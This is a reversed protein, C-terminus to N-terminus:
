NNVNELKVNEGVKKKINRLNKYDNHQTTSRVLTFYENM